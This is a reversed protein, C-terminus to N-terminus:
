QAPGIDGGWGQWVVFGAAASLVVNRTLTMWGVDASHLQGFCHCGPKRGRALNASIGSVFLLLLAQAGVAGDWATAVPIFAVAVTCTPTTGCFFDAECNIPGEITAFCNCASSGCTQASFGCTLVILM